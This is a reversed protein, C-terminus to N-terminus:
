KHKDADADLLVKASNPIHTVAEIGRDILQHLDLGTTHAKEFSKALAIWKDATLDRKVPLALLIANTSGACRLVHLEPFNAAYTKLMDPYDKEEYWLNACVVGGEALHDKVSKLFEQTALLYPISTASFADLMIIDYKDKSKEIFKRGDGISVKQRADEKFNFYRRAIDLMVPDLEATEITLDPLLQHLYRQICAGGLGVVLIRNPKAVVPLSTIMYRAYALTLQTTNNLNMESQIPDTGDLKADFILQRYGNPTDWVTIHEYRSTVEYVINGKQASVSVALIVILAVLYIMRRSIIPIHM